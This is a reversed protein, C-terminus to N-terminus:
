QSICTRSNFQNLAPRESLPGSCTWVTPNVDVGNTMTNNMAAFVEFL